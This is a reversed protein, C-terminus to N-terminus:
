EAPTSDLAALSHWLVAACRTPTPDTAASFLHRLRRLAGGEMQRTREPSLHQACDAVQGIVAGTAGLTLKPRGIGYRCELVAAQRPELDDFLSPLLALGLRLESEHDYSAIAAERAVAKAATERELAVMRVPDNGWGRLRRCHEPDRRLAELASEAAHWAILEPPPVVDRALLSWGRSCLWRGGHRGSDSACKAEFNLAADQAALERSHKLLLEAEDRARRLKAKAAALAAEAAAVAAEAKQVPRQRDREAKRRLYLSQPM